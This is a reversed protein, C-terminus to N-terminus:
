VRISRWRGVSSDFVIRFCAIRGLAPMAEFATSATLVAPTGLVVLSWQADLKLSRPAVHDNSSMAALAHWCPFLWSHLISM